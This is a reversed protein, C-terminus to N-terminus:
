KTKKTSKAKASSKKANKKVGDKDSKTAHAQTKREARAKARARKAADVPTAKIIAVCDDLTVAAANAQQDKSLRYNQYQYTFFPGFRGNQVEIVEGDHKFTNIVRNAEKERKAIILTQCEEASITLPDFNKPISTFKGDHRIYPGFRGAAVVMAKGEFEGVERPLKPMDFLALADDLTIDYISQDKKLPAFEPKQEGEGNGRQVFSGYPGIKAYIPQGSAPDDGLVLTGVRVEGKADLAKAIKPQFRAYFDTIFDNWKAEGSAIRDFDEESNATFKYDMEDPLTQQLYDSVVFGLDTPFLKNKEKGAKETKVSVNVRDNDDLTIVKCQRENGDISKRTVYGRDEITSITSAYTSPRGIGKDRMENVLSAESYRAKPPKAYYETAEVTVRTLTDGKAIPPLSYIFDDDDDDDNAEHYLKLFGDFLIIEGTAEFTQKTNSLAITATTNKVKAKAMQSAVTRKWILEYLAALRRDDTKLTVRTMDTPRIAEHAGQEGKNKKGYQKPQSYRNGYNDDIWKKAAAMAEGSLTRADTRHYTIFGREFLSQLMNMTQKATLSLKRGAEALLTPNDFPPAPNRESENERIDDVKFTAQKAIDLFARAQSEDRLNDTLRATIKNKKDPLMFSAKVIFSSKIKRNFADIEREREVVMRVVPSQVRGASLGPYIKKWLLPSIEYGEIRDLVRRAQQAMVLDINIQRDNALADAVGKPTIELAAIRHAKQPTLKLINYLHWAIAEGERDADSALYVANAADAKKKLEAVLAKKDPEIDYIPEFGKKFNIGFRIGKERSQKNDKTDMIDCIHGKSSVVEWEGKKGMKNLIAAIEKAKTPSEVIVLKEAM